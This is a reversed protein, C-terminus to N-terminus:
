TSLIPPARPRSFHFHPNTKFVRIESVLECIVVLFVAVDPVNDSVDLGNQVLACVPCDDHEDFDDHHHQAISLLGAMVLAIITTKFLKV